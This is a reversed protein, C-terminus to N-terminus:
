RPCRGPTPLSLGARKTDVLASLAEVNAFNEAVLDEDSLSIEFTEEVWAILVECALSDLMGTALPDFTLASSELLESEIFQTIQQDTSM